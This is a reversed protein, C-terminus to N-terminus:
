YRHNDYRKGREFKDIIKTRGTHKNILKMYFEMEEALMWDRAGMYHSSVIIKQERTLAKPQKM